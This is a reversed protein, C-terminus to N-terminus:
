KNKRIRSRFKKLLKLRQKEMNPSNMIKASSYVYKIFNRNYKRKAMRAKITKGRLPMESYKNYLAQQRLPAPQGSAKSEERRQHRAAQIAKKM